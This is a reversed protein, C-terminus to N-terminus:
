PANLLQQASEPPKPTVDRSGWCHGLAAAEGPQMWCFIGPSKSGLQWSCASVTRLHRKLGWVLKRARAGARRLEHEVFATIAPM